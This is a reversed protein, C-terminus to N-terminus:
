GMSRHARLRRLARVKHEGEDIRGCGRLTRVNHEGEDGHRRVECWGFGAM